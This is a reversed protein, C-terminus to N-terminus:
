FTGTSPRSARSQYALELLFTLKLAKMAEITVKSSVLQFCREGSLGYDWGKVKPVLIAHEYFAM